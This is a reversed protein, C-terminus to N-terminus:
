RKRTIIPTHTEQVMWVRIGEGEKRTEVMKRKGAKKLGQISVSAVKVEAGSEVKTPIDQM